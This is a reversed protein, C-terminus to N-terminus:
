AFQIVRIFRQADAGIRQSTSMTATTAMVPEGTNSWLTENLASKMQVQYLRGTVATWSFNLAFGTLHVNTISVPEPPPVIKFIKGTAGSPGLTSSVM